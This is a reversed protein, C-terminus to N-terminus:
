TAQRIERGVRCRCSELHSAIVEPKQSTVQLDPRIIPHRQVTGVAGRDESHVPREDDQQVAKRQHQLCM